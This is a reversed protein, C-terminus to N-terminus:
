YISMNKNLSYKLLKNIKKYSSGPGRASSVLIM